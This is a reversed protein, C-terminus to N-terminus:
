DRTEDIPQEDTEVQVSFPIVKITSDICHVTIPYTGDANARIFESDTVCVRGVSDICILKHAPVGCRGFWTSKDAWQQATQFAFLPSGVVIEKRM